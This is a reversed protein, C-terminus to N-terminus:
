SRPCACPARQAKAKNGLRRGCPKRPQVKQGRCPGGSCVADQDRDHGSKVGRTLAQHRYGRRKTLVTDLTTQPAHCPSLQTGEHTGEHTHGRTHARTHTPRRTDGSTHTDEHTDEHTARLEGGMEKGKHTTRPLGAALAARAAGSQAAGGAEVVVHLGRHM